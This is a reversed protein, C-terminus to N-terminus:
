GAALRDFLDDTIGEERLVFKQIRQNQNKPLADRFGVYRPVAFRALSGACHEILERPGLQQGEQLVVAVAVEEERVEDPVAYAASELVAPHANLVTEIEWSSINEGSRRICDKARDVFYFFGDEDMRARDGTHFWLDRFARVTAEPRGLYEQIVIGPRKPRVLIEGAEGVAVPEGDEDALMVDYYPVPKGCSGVRREDRTCWTTIGTESMGYHEMLTIGFREEIEPWMAAPTAAGYVRTVRHDRDRPSPPQKALMVLLSGMYNFATVGHERMVDWHRSASFRDHLVLRAGTLLSAVVSTYKANVHSLPFVTFLVDERTYGMLEIAASALNLNAAHGLAVGKSPGTTGSTYCVVTLEDGRAPHLRGRPHALVDALDHIQDAAGEQDEALGGRVIVHELGLQLPALRPVFEADCILVRAATEGIVHRVLHDGYQTHMPVEVMGARVIGFWACLFEPVNRMWIAVRDGPSCGFDQLAGAVAASEAEIQPARTERGESVLVFTDEEAAHELTAGITAPPPSM